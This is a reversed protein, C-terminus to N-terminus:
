KTSSGSIPLNPSLPLAPFHKLSSQSMPDCALDIWRRKTAPRSFFTHSTESTHGASTCSARVRRAAGRLSRSASRARRRASSGVLASDIGAASSNPM